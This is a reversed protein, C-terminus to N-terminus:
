DLRDSSKSSTGITVLAWSNVGLEEYFLVFSAWASGPNYENLLGESNTVQNWYCWVCMVKEGWEGRSIDM